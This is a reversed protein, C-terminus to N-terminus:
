SPKRSQPTIWAPSSSASPSVNSAGFVGIGVRRATGCGREDPRLAREVRCDGCPLRRRFRWTFHRQRREALLSDDAPERLVFAKPAVTTFSSGAAASSMAARRSRAVSAADDGGSLVAGRTLRRAAGGVPQERPVAFCLPPEANPPLRERRDVEDLRGEPLHLVLVAPAFV